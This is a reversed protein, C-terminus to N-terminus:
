SFFKLLGKVLNSQQPKLFRPFVLNSVAIPVGGIKMRGGDYASTEIPHISDLVSVPCPARIRVADLADENIM